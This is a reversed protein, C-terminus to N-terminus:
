KRSRRSKRRKTHRRKTKRKGGFVGSTRGLSSKVENNPNFKILGIGKSDRNAQRERLTANRVEQHTMMPNTVVPSHYLFDRTMTNKFLEERNTAVYKKYNALEQKLKSEVIAKSEPTKSQSAIFEDFHEIAAKENANLMFYPSTKQRKGANIAVKANKKAQAILSNAFSPTFYGKIGSWAASM